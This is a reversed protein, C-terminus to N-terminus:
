RRATTRGVADGVPPHPLRDLFVSALWSVAIRRNIASFISSTGSKGNRYDAWANDPIARVCLRLSLRFTLFSNRGSGDPATEIADCANAILHTGEFLYRKQM